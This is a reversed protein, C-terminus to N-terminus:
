RLDVVAYTTLHPLSFETAGGAVVQDSLAVGGRDLVYANGGRYSGRVRVRLGAIDRNGYNLLQIRVRSDDGSVKAVVVESGFIRLRRREDTLQRRIKLAFGSPDAAEAVPYEKTGLRINVPLAPQPATVIRFLLNRRVLLNMVEAVVPSGDDVVGVDALLPLAAPPVDKVFAFVRCVAAQDAPGIQLVADARYAIAEAAALAGKGEPLEYRYQGDPKRMFRAGNTNLWPARTPSAVGPRAVTGPVLLLERARQDPPLPGVSANVAGSPPCTEQAAATIVIGAASPVAAALAAIALRARLRV